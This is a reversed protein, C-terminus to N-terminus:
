CQNLQNLDWEINFISKLSNSDKDNLNLLLMVDDVLFTVVAVEESLFTVVAVEESFTAEHLKVLVCFMESFDECWLEFVHQIEAGGRSYEEVYSKYKECGYKTITRYALSQLIYQKNLDFQTLKM